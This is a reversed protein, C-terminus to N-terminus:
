TMKNEGKIREKVFFHSSKKFKIVHLLFIVDYWISEYTDNKWIMHFLVDASMLYDEKTHIGTTYLM